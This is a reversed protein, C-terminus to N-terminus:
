CLEEKKTQYYNDMCSFCRLLFPAETEESSKLPEVEVLADKCEPCRLQRSTNNKIFDLAEKSTRTDLMEYEEILRNGFYYWIHGESKKIIFQSV